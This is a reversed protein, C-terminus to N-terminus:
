APINLWMGPKWILRRKKEMRQWQESWFWAQEPDIVQASSVIVRGAEDAYFLLDDGEEAELM